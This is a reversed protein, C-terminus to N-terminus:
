LQTEPARLVVRRGASVHFCDNGSTTTLKKTRKDYSPVMLVYISSVQHFNIGRTERVRRFLGSGESVILFGFHIFILLESFIFCFCNVVVKM